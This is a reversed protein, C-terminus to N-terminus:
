SIRIQKREKQPELFQTKLGMADFSLIIKGRRVFFKNYKKWNHKM